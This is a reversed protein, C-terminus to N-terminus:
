DTILILEAHKAKSRDGLSWPDVQIVQGSYEIQVSSHIIPTIEIDGAAAPVKDANGPTGLLALLASLAFARMPQSRIHCAPRCGRPRRTGGTCAWGNAAGIRVASRAQGARQGILVVHQGDALAHPRHAFM